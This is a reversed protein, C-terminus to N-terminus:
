ILVFKTTNLFPNGAELVAAAAAAATYDGLGLCTLVKTQQTYAPCSSASALCSSSRM